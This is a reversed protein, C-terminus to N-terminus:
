DGDIGLDGRQADGGRARVGCSAALVAFAKASDILSNRRVRSSASRAASTWVSCGRRASSCVCIRSRCRRRAPSGSSAGSSSACLSANVLWYACAKWRSCASCDCAAAVLGSMVSCSAKAMGAAAVPLGMGVLGLERRAAPPPPRGAARGPVRAPAPAGPCAREAGALLDLLDGAQRHDGLHRPQGACSRREVSITVRACGRAPRGLGVPPQAGDISSTGLWRMPSLSGTSGAM